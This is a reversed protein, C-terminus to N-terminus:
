YVESLVVFALAIPYDDSLAIHINFGKPVAAELHHGFIKVVPAGFENNIIAVDKFSIHQGIGVGLAKAVAEKGAFRKALFSIKKNESLKHFERIELDHFNKHLFRDGFKAYVGEIRPIQVVDTGVGLVAM